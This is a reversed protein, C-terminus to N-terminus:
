RLHLYFDKFCCCRPLTFVATLLSIKWKSSSYYHLDIKGVVGAIESPDAM